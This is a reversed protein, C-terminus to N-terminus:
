GCSRGDSSAALATGPEPERRRTIGEDVLKVEKDKLRQYVKYHQRDYYIWRTERIWDQDTVNTKRLSSTRIVGWELGGRDDYSWNILEEPSYDVLSLRRSQGMADEEARNTMM